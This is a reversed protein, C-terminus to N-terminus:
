VIRSKIARGEHFAVLNNLAFEAKEEQDAGSLQPEAEELYAMAEKYQGDEIAKGARRIEKKQAFAAVTFMALVGTLIRTRM